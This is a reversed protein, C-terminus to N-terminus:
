IQEVKAFDESIECTVIEGDDPLAKALWITSYRRM